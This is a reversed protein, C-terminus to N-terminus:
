QLHWKEKRVMAKSLEMAVVALLSLAAIYAWYILPLGETSFLRQMPPWYVFAMQAGTCVVFAVLLYPNGLVPLKGLSTVLSRCNLSHVIQFLVMTTVAATQALRLNDETDLLVFRFIALTGLGFVIGIVTTHVITIRDFIRARHGQPPRRLVFAEDPELILALHQVSNTVLNIWLIQAALFPLQWGLILAGLIAIVEGAGSSLLFFVVKRISEFMHRGLKVAEYISAFSDDLLVVDSAQRAAETGGQGMAVGIDARRLAPADNVGDGTVAVVRGQRQLAKVVRLKDHPTVRAFASIDAARRELEEESMKVLQAGNVVTSLQSLDDPLEGELLGVQQSIAAATAPHDGTVMIVKIGSDKCGEIAKVAEPRPPDTIGLLGVLTLGAVEEEEVTTKEWPRQAVAVVRQGQRAMQKVTELWRDEELPVETDEVPFWEQRCRPIIVEPAGKAYLMGRDGDRQVTAMFKRASSFPVESTPPAEEREHLLEPVLVAAAELLAVETPSGATTVGGMEDAAYEANNCYVAVRLVRRLQRLTQEDELPCILDNETSVEPCALPAEPRVSIINRGWVMTQVTMHNQTLTGTKDTCIVDVSGMTEAAALKRVLVNRQAMRRVGVSLVVTIVVPLGEPMVSVALAVATIFVDKLDMGRLLGIGVTLAALLIMGYALINAFRHLRRQLPTQSTKVEAVTEAIKGLESRSGTAYVLADGRGEVVMSGAYIMNLTDALLTEPDPMAEGIKHIPVSEGTLQSEDTLVELSRVVRMDAAARMGAEVLVLDGPVLEESPIRLLQGGRRVQSISTAMQRLAEIARTAKYEQFFGIIANLLVVVMIIATDKYDQLAFTIVAAALLVYIIPSAFQELAIRWLPYPEYRTVVNPGFTALRAAAEEQSLGKPTTQLLDYVGDPPATILDGRSPLQSMPM